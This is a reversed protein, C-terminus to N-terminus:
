IKNKWCDQSQQWHITGENEYLWLCCRLNDIENLPDIEKDLEKECYEVTSPILQCLGMGASCGYQQNCINKWKSECDIIVSLIYPIEPKYVPNVFVVLSNKQIIVLNSIRPNEIEPAIVPQPHGLILLILGIAM